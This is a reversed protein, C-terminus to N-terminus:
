VWILRTLPESRGCRLEARKVAPLNQSSTRRAPKTTESGTQTVPPSITPALNEGESLIKKEDDSVCGFDAFSRGAARHRALGSRASCGQAAVSAALEDSGPVLGPSPTPGAVWGAGSGGEALGATDFTVTKMKGSM